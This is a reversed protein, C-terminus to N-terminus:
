CSESTNTTIWKFFSSRCDFCIKHSADFSIVRQVFHVTSHSSGDLSIFGISRELSDSQDVFNRSTSCLARCMSLSCITGVFYLVPTVQPESSRISLNSHWTIESTRFEYLCISRMLISACNNNTNLQEKMLRVTSRATHVVALAFVYLVCRYFSVIGDSTVFCCYVLKSHAVTAFEPSFVYRTTYFQRRRDGNNFRSRICPTQSDTLSLSM